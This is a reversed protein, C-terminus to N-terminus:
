ITCYKEFYFIGGERYSSPMGIEHTERYQWMDHIGRFPFYSVVSCPTTHGM